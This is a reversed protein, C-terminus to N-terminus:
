KGELEIVLNGDVLDYAKVPLNMNLTKSYVKDKGIAKIEICSELQNIFIDEINKVGPVQLNYMVKGSLRRVQSKPEVKPLKALLKMKEKSLEKQPAQPKQTPNIEPNNTPNVPKGNVLFQVNMGRRPQEQPNRNQNVSNEM